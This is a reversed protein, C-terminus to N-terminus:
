QVSKTQALWLWLYNLYKHIICGKLYTSPKSLIHINQLAFYIKWLPEQHEKAFFLRQLCCTHRIPYLPDRCLPIAHLYEVIFIYVTNCIKLCTNKKSQFGTYDAFKRFIRAIRYINVSKWQSSALFIFYFPRSLNEVGGIWILFFHKTGFFDTM